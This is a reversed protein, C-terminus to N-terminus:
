RSVGAAPLRVSVRTGVGVRSYFTMTGGHNSVIRSSVALGLGSGGRARKTTFFPDTVRPLNQEPIGMGEDTVQIVVWRGDEEAMTEVSIRCDPFPLSQCANTLLNIIVQELQQISGRVAALGDTRVVSFANSSKRILNGTIMVASDIVANVDVEETLQGEEGRAFDRLNLVLRAIRKSGEEIGTMLDEVMGRATEFPLGHLDFGDEGGARQELVPRIDRWFEKLNQSNLLIFNNPNNIEHAIGSVLTGLSALKAAQFLQQEHERQREEMRKRETIDQTVGILRAIRGTENRVPVLTTHWWVHGAPLDFDEDFSIPAQGALCRLNNATMAEATEKSLFEEYFKGAVDDNTFGVMKELAPNHAAVRFRPGAMVDLVFIGDSTNEFVERYRKESERHAEEAVAQATLDVPLAILRSVRGDTDKVPILTTHFTVRGIPMEIAGEASTPVGAQIARRYNAVLQRSTQRPLVEDVFRGLTGEVAVGTMRTVAPNFAVVRFRQDPTVDFVVIGTSTHDFVDRYRQESERASALASRTEDNAAILRRVYGRIIGVCVIFVAYSGFRVAVEWYSALSRFYDLDGGALHDILWLPASAAALLWAWPRDLFWAFVAIPVLYFLAFSLSEPTLLDAVAILAFSAFGLVFTIWQRNALLRAAREGIGSSAQEGSQSTVPDMAGDM